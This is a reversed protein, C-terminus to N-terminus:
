PFREAFSGFPLRVRHQHEWAAKMADADAVSLAGARLLSVVLSETTEVVTAPYFQAIRKRATRDDIAISWKRHVAVAIASCEGIGL